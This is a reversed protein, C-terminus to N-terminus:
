RELSRMVDAVRAIQAHASADDPYLSCEVNQLDFVYRDSGEKSQGVSKGYTTKEEVACAVDGHRSIVQKNVDRVLPANRRQEGATLADFLTLLCV